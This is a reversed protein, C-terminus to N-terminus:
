RSLHGLKIVSAGAPSHEPTRIATFLHLGKSQGEKAVSIAFADELLAQLEYM